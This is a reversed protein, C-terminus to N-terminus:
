AANLWPPRGSVPQAAQEFEAATQETSFPEPQEQRPSGYFTHGGDMPSEQGPPGEQPPPQGEGPPQMQSSYAGRKMADQQEHQAVHQIFRQRVYPPLDRFESANMFRTHSDLHVDDKEFFEVPIVTWPDALFMMEEDRARRGHLQEDEWAESDDNDYGMRRLVADGAPNNPDFLNAAAMDMLEGFRTARSLPQGEFAELVVEADLDYNSAKFVRAALARNRGVERIMRGETYFLKTLKLCIQLVRTVDEKFRIITPERAGQQFQYLFAMARGSDVGQPSEGRSIESFGSITQVVSLMAGEVGFFSNPIDPVDMWRPMLNGAVDIVEGAMDTYREPDVGAGIPNLLPPNLIKDTWEKRKSANHNITRQLPILDAVVGDAFLGNPVVNDSLRLVWPWVVEGSGADFYPIPGAAILVDNVFVVLRGLPHARTPREWFEVLEALANGPARGSGTAYNYLESNRGDNELHDQGGLGDDEHAQSWRGKTSEGHFDYPFLDDLVRVPVRKRECVYGIEAECTATPDCVASTISCFRVEVEGEAQGNKIRGKSPNWIVKYWAAGNVDVATECRHRTDFSFVGNRPFSRVLRRAARARMYAATEDGSPICDPEPMNRLRDAVSTRVTPRVMNLVERQEDADFADQYWGIPTAIGWQFGRYFAMQEVNKWERQQAAAVADDFYHRAERMWEMGDITKSRTRRPIAEEQMEM